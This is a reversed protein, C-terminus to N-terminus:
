QECGTGSSAPKCKYNKCDSLSSTKLGGPIELADPRPRQWLGEWSCELTRLTLSELALYKGKGQEEPSM